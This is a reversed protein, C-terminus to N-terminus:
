GERTSALLLRKRFELYGFQKVLTDICTEALEMALEFWVASGGASPNTVMERSTGM